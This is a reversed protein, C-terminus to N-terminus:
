AAAFQSQQSVIECIWERWKCGGIANSTTLLPSSIFKVSQMPLGPDAAAPSQASRASQGAASRKSGSGGSRWSGRWVLNPMLTAQQEESKVACSVCRPGRCPRASQPQTLPTTRAGSSMLSHRLDAPDFAGDSHGMRAATGEDAGLLAGLRLGGNRRRVPEIESFCKRMAQRSLKRTAAHGM